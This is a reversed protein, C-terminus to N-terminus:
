GATGYHEGTGAFGGDGDGVVVPSVSPVDGGGEPVEGKTGLHAAVVEWKKGGVPPAGTSIYMKVRCKAYINRIVLSLSVSTVMATKWIIGRIFWM